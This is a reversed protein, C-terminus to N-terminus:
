GGGRQGVRGAVAGPVGVGLARERRATASPRRALPSSRISTGAERPPPSTAGSRITASTSSSARASPEAPQHRATAAVLPTSAANM